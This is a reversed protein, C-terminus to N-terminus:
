SGKSVELKSGAYAAMDSYVRRWPNNQAQTISDNHWLSIFTGGVEDVLDILMKYKQTAQEPSLQLYDRLTGDMITLPYIMLGTVCNSHFDFFLHPTCTGSRFGIQEAYGMTFDSKIGARILRRYTKSVNMRLFHQRSLTVKENLIDELQGIEQALEGQKDGSLYSPHIGVKAYSSIHKILKQFKKNTPSINRDMKGGSGLLFFYITKCQTKKAIQEQFAYTDFPDPIAKLLVKGREIVNSINGTLINKASAAVVRLPSRHTYAYAIDIDFTNIWEFRRKKPKFEPFKASLIQGLKILWIDVIPKERFEPESLISNKWEYRGHKDRETTESEEVRALLYFVATFVDFPVDGKKPFLTPTGDWDGIDVKYTYDIPSIQLMQHQPINIANVVRSVGHSIVAVDRPLHSNERKLEVECDFFVRFVFDYAYLAADTFSTSVIYVKSRM